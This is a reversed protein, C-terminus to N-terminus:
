IRQPLTSKKSTGFPNSNFQGSKTKSDRLPVHGAQHFKLPTQARRKGTQQIKQILLDAMLPKQGPAYDRRVPINQTMMTMPRKPTIDRSKPTQTQTATALKVIRRDLKLAHVPKTTGIAVGSMSQENLPANQWINSPLKLTRMQQKPSTLFPSRGSTKTFNNASNLTISEM